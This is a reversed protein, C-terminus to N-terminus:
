SSARTSLAAPAEREGSLGFRLGGDVGRSEPLRLRVHLRNPNKVPNACCLPWSRPPRPSGDPKMVVLWMWGVPAAEVQGGVEERRFSPLSAWGRPNDHLRLCRAYSAWAADAALVNEIMSAASGRLSRKRFHTNAPTVCFHHRTKLFTQSITLSLELPKKRGTSSRQFM